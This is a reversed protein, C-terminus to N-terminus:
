TRGTHYSRSKQRKKTKSSFHKNKGKEIDIRNGTARKTKKQNKQMDRRRGEGGGRQRPPIMTTNNKESQKKEKLIENTFTSNQETREAHSPSALRPSIYMLIYILM